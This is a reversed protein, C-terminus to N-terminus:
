NPIVEETIDHQETGEPDSIAVFKTNFISCWRKLRSPHQVNRDGVGESDIMGIRCYEHLKTAKMNNM